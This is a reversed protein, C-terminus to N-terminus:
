LRLPSPANVSMIYAAPSVPCISMARVTVLMMQPPQLANALKARRRRKVPGQIWANTADERAAERAYKIEDWEVTTKSERPLPMKLPTRIKMHREEMMNKSQCFLAVFSAMM